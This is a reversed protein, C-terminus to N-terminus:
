LKAKLEARKATDVKMYKYVDPITIHRKYNKLWGQSVEYTIRHTNVIWPMENVYIDRMKQYIKTREPGPPMNSAQQYLKDFEANKFSSDNPGPSANPGYLLQFFNEADPYDAVWGIGWIEAKNQKLKSQFQPWSSTNIKIKIGIAAMEQQFQEALQRATSSNTTEYAFELGKGEPFGAAKLLEKAKEVNYEAYPNKFNPDYGDIGPPIPSHAEVARGNYFREILAKSNTALAMAKRIEPKKGLINHKMNFGVYTVDPDPTVLLYMGKGAFEEKLKGDKIATDFNDKPISIYDLNGKMFNLWRPQDEIIESFVIKDAFPLKKGADALLGAEQDGAEGETPYTQGAWNPNKVLTIKNNRVWESVKYPGTGVPNNLFEKGYKEVAERPVPASYTMALVYHLQFYPKTLKIVLTYDDPAQLGEIPTDYNATKKTMAERWENLGKIKGDFIWFGDSLISPDALRKWSYIFDQAKLERGKGEPFAADDAFRIGKRIKFTHTLGNDTVTPMAEALRPELTLPRKLYHYGVLTEFIQSAVENSYVDSAYVPDLGKVNATLAAYITNDNTDQKSTCATLAFVFAIMAACITYWILNWTSKQILQDSKLYYAQGRM